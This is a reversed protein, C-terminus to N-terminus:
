FRIEGSLRAFLTNEQDTTHYVINPTVKLGKSLAFQIGALHWRQSVPETTGSGLADQEYDTRGFIQVTRAVELRGYFSYFYNQAESSFALDTSRTGFESGVWFHNSHRGAFVSYLYIQDGPQIYDVSGYVGANFGIEQSLNESGYLLRLHLRKGTNMEAVTFGGGNTVKAMVSIKSSFSAQYGIGFDTAIAYHYQDLATKFLYRMGWTREQILFAGTNMLGFSFTSVRGPSWNAYAYKLILDYGGGTSDPQRVDSTVRFQARPSLMGRVNVYARNVSFANAGGETQYSYNTFVVGSTNLSSAQGFLTGAGALWLLSYLIWKGANRLAM